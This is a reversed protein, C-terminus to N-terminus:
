GGGRSGRGRSGRGCRAAAPHVPRGRAGTARLGAPRRDDSPAAAEDARGGGAPPAAADVPDRPRRAARRRVQPPHQARDKGVAVRRAGGQVLDHAIEMGSSGGGVVLVDCGRYPVADVYDAAHVVPVAPRGPTLGEPLFPVSLLGTAVVVQAAILRERSTTVRWRGDDQDVRTVCSGARVDLGHRDHYDELYRVVHDRTPFMPTGRPFRLGPLASFPRGSNLRLARYRSRWASGVDSGRELVVAAVGHRALAAACALGTPGAGVVVVEAVGAGHRSDLTQM